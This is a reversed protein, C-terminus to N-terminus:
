DGIWTGQTAQISDRSM